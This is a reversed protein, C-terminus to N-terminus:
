GSYDIAGQTGPPREEWRAKIVGLAPAELATIKFYYTGIAIGRADLEHDGISTAQATANSTRAMLVDLLTGGTHTGGTTLVLQGQYPPQPRENMNNAPFTAVPTGFTGGETGGVLTEVEIWGDVLQLQLGILITNVPVVAKIVISGTGPLNIRHFMRFERGAFFGTSGADVQIRPEEGPRGTKLSDVLDVLRFMGM